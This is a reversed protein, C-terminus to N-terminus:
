LEAPVPNACFHLIAGFLSLSWITTKKTQKTLSPKFRYAFVAELCNSFNFSPRLPLAKARSRLLLPLDEEGCWVFDAVM